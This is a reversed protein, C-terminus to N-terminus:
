KLGSLKLIDAMSENQNQKPLYGLQDSIYDEDYNLLHRITKSSMGAKQMYQAMQDIIESEREPSYTVGDNAMQQGIDVDLAVNENAAEPKKGTQPVGAKKQLDKIMDEDDGHGVKDLVKKGFAKAKDMVGEEVDDESDEEDTSEGIFQKYDKMLSEYTATPQTRIRSKGSATRGSGPQNEHHAYEESDFEPVNRPDNPTNDYDEDAEKDSLDDGMKSGASYGAMAGMPGGLVAGAAGGLLGGIVGEDAEEGEEDGDGDGDLDSDQHLKDIVSRMTDTQSEPEDVVIAAPPPMVGQEPEASQKGLGALSMIDRLMGSLEQGSGATMNISAPTHSQGMMEPMMGCEALATKEHTSFDQTPAVVKLNTDVVNPNTADLAALRKMVDIM